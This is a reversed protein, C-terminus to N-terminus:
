QRWDDSLECWLHQGPPLGCSVCVLCRPRRDLHPVRSKAFAAKLEEIERRLRAPWGRHPTTSIGAPTPPANQAALLAAPAPRHEASSPADGEEDHSLDSIELRLQDGDDGKAAAKLPPGPKPM